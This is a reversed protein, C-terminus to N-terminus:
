YRSRITFTKTELGCINCCVSSGIHHALSDTCHGFVQRSPVCRAYTHDNGFFGGLAFFFAGSRDLGVYGDELFNSGIKRSGREGLYLTKPMINTRVSARLPRAMASPETIGATGM